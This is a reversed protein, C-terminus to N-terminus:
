KEEEMKMAVAAPISAVANPEFETNFYDAIELNTQTLLEDIYLFCMLEYM